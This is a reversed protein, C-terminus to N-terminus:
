GRKSLWGTPRMSGSKAWADERLEQLVLRMQALNLFGSNGYDKDRFHQRMQVKSLGTEKALGAFEAVSILGDNDDDLAAIRADDEQLTKERLRAVRANLFAELWRLLLQITEKTDKPYYLRLSDEFSVINMNKAHTDNLQNEEFQRFLKMVEPRRRQLNHPLEPVTMNARAAREAALRMTEKMEIYSVNGSRDYDFEEFLEEVSKPDCGEISGMVVQMFEKKDIEGSGDLDFKRFMDSVRDFVDTKRLQKRLDDVTLHILGSKTRVKAKGTKSARRSMGPSAASDAADMMEDLTDALSKRRAPKLSSTRLDAMSEGALRRAILGAKQSGAPLTSSSRRLLPGDPAPPMAPAPIAPAPMAFRSSRSPDRTPLQGESQSVRMGHAAAAAAGRPSLSPRPRDPQPQTHPQTATPSPAPPAPSPAHPAPSPSKVGPTPAALAAGASVSTKANVWRETVTPEPPAAAAFVAELVEEEWEASELKEWLFPADIEAQHAQSEARAETPVHLRQANLRKISGAKINYPDYLVSVRQRPPSGFTYFRTPRRQRVQPSLQAAPHWVGHEPAEGSNPSSPLGPPLFGGMRAPPLQPSSASAALRPSSSSPAAPPHREALENIVGTKSRTRLRPLEAPPPPAEPEVRARRAHWEDRASRANIFM